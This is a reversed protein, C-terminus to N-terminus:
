TLLFAAATILLPLIDEEESDVLLLLVICILLLDGIDLGKLPPGPKTYAQQTCVSKRNDDCTCVPVTDCTQPTINNKEPVSKREYIGNSGPIYRNYM